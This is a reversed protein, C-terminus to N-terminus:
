VNPIESLFTFLHIHVLTLLTNGYKAEDCETCNYKLKGISKGTFMHLFLESIDVGSAGYPFAVPDKNRLLIRVSNRADEFCKQKLSVQQFGL